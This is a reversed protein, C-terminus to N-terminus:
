VMPGLALGSAPWPILARARCVMLTRTALPNNAPIITMMWNVTRASDMESSFPRKSPKRVASTLVVMVMTLASWPRRVVSTVTESDCAKEYRWHLKMRLECPSPVGYTRCSAREGVVETDPVSLRMKWRDVGSPDRSQPNKRRNKITTTPNAPITKNQLNRKDWKKRVEVGFLFLFFVIHNSVGGTRVDRM